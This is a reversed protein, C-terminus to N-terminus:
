TGEDKVAVSFSRYMDDTEAGEKEPGQKIKKDLLYMFLVFLFTYIVAFMVLSRAVQATSISKSLGQPTRLLKYVIWPQRGMEAVMWGVQNAIQPFLVAIVMIKLLWRAQDLRGKKWFYWGLLVSAFMFVWMAVMAHYAQFVAQVNPWEDAPIQDLGIVPEETSHHTLFSLLGPIKPGVVKQASTDVWGFLTMPASAETKYVGEMAALKAPQHTAVGRATLDASILQLLLAIMGVILSLKMCEKAFRLHKKKLLYYASVSLVLFIGALWCGLVVHTLRDVSSPNFVMQWFDTVVAKAEAGEGVIKFGRPTQMWSNAVVIWVASFHAGLCVMWTSFYHMKASVRNWGFLMVGLFGSELFFAFIGEAGLASGFVDGVFRSYSAWNTGFGFVQVLGTAVGLAFTLAFVKVWFKTIEKYLPNKTKIYIGEMIVLMLGLGISLPPYIYHFMSTLAFQIRSLLLADM